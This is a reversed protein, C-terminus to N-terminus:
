PKVNGDRERERERMLRVMNLLRDAEDLVLCKLKSLTFGKTNELHDVIRGPTAVVVHPKNALHITQSMMDIYYCFYLIFLVVPLLLFFFRAM